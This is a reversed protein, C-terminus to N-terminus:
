EIPAGHTPACPALSAATNEMSGSSAVCRSPGRRGPSYSIRKSFRELCVGAAVVFALWSGLSVWVGITFARPAYEIRLHHHGAALPVARLVYNAPQLDYQQQVSGPLAVARWAPTYPDTILLIAPSAADAEVELWDTSSAVVRATGPAESAVPAISPARELIVEKRPDFGEARMASFIAERLSIVQCRSVLQVHEMPATPSELVRVGKQDPVFAYRFRLMAYLPDAGRFNVYQTASDPAIGQTWSIFEAYRRVVSPDGGWLDQAGLSMASNPNLLNLSRYDGPHKAIFERLSSDAVTRTDFTDRTHRAVFFTELVVVLAFFHMAHRWRPKVHLLGATALLLVGPLLLASAAFGRAHDAFSLDEFATPPLYSERTAAIARLWERWEVSSLLQIYGSLLLLFGGAIAVGLVFRREVRPKRLLVDFGMAALMVLFVATQFTFKSIGRFKGFGPVWDYLVQFLPTHVGLAFLFTVAVMASLIWVRQLPPTAPQATPPNKDCGRSCLAGYVALALGTSGIFLSMEWLYCRGWYPQNMMDGFFYPNLLTLLNEPPFGFMSAFEFPVPVSRITEATAQFAPFLQIAALASGGGFMAALACMPIVGASLFSGRAGTPSKAVLMQAGHLLVYLGTAIGTYFLYQPHGALIQMAVAFMGLLIWGAWRTAPVARGRSMVGDVALFILPVWTMTAMHVPHGSYIHMFHPGCFMLLVGAVFCALPKLGRFAAWAYMFVGMLWVNLAISWNIALPLPLFLLLINTPYLTAGQMGGFYPAGGYVHPNWLALNGHSLQAFGFERWSFIQLFMDTTQNALVFSGPALLMDAFVAFVILGLAAAAKWAASLNLGNEVEASPSGLAPSPKPPKRASTKM